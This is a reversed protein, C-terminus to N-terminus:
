TLRCVKVAGVEDALRVEGTFTQQMRLLEALLAM